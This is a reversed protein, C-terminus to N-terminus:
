NYFSKSSLLKKAVAIDIESKQTIYIGSYPICEIPLEYLNVKKTVVTSLLLKPQNLHKLAQTRGYEFWSINKSSKRKQLKVKFSKLYKTAEPFNKEFFEPTYRHISNKEYYYPFIIMEEKKYNLGRPSAASRILKREIKYNEILLYDKNLEYEKIVYAENLLTAITISANFYDGFICKNNSVINPSVSFIWKDGLKTKDIKYSEERYMNHYKINRAQISKDVIVIASSTLAKSFLKKETFDYIEVLNQLLLNRLDKGFVNKFISNPILYAMKGKANLNNISNEIFAYCYDFKGNSCSTYHKKLYSRSDVEIDSYKIYPPNGIIFDFPNKWNIKLSDKNIINWNVKFINYKGTIEDLNKLCEEYHIKDIEAAYIDSELGKKIKQLAVGEKLASEIYRTVIKRLINGDGC